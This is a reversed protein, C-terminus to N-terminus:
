QPHPCEHVVWVLRSESTGVYDEAVGLSRPRPQSQPLQVRALRHRRPQPQSNLSSSDNRPTPLYLALGIKECPVLVPVLQHALGPERSRLQDDLSQSRPGSM